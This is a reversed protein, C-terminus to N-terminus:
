PTVLKALLPRLQLLVEGRTLADSHVYIQHPDSVGYRALFAVLDSWVVPEDPQFRGDEGGLFVERERLAALTPAAWHMYPVDRFSACTPKPAIGLIRAVMVAWEARTIPRDLQPDDEVESSNLAVALIEKLPELQWEHWGKRLLVAQLEQKGWAYAADRSPFLLDITNGVIAGGTDEGQALGYGPVDLISGFPLVEPDVAMVGPRLGTGNATRPVFTGDSCEESSYAFAV